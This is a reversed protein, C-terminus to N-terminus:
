ITEMSEAKERATRLYKRCRAILADAKRIYADIDDIGTGPDEVKAAIKELETRDADASFYGVVTSGTPAAAFAESIAEACEDATYGPRHREAYAALQEVFQLDKDYRLENAQYSQEAANMADRLEKLADSGSGVQLRQEFGTRLVGQPLNLNRVDRQAVARDVDAAVAHVGDQLRAVNHAEAEDAVEARDDVALHIEDGELAPAVLVQRHFVDVTRVLLSTDSQHAVVRM